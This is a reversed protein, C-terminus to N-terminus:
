VANCTSFLMFLMEVILGAVISFVSHKIPLTCVRITTYGVSQIINWAFFVTLLEGALVASRCEGLNPVSAM